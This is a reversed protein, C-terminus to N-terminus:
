TDDLHEMTLPTALFDAPIENVQILHCPFSLRENSRVLKIMLFHSTCYDVFQFTAKNFWTSVLGHGTHGQSGLIAKIQLTLIHAQM